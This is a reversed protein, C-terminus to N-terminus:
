ITIIKKIDNLDILYKKRFDGSKTFIENKHEKVFDVVKQWKKGDPDNEPANFGVSEAYIYLIANNWTRLREAIDDVTGPEEYTTWFGSNKEGEIIEANYIIKKKKNNYCQMKKTNEDIQCKRGYTDIVEKAKM